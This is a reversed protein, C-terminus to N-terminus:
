SPRSAEAFAARTDQRLLIVLAWIGFPFGYFLCPSLFPIIAACAGVICMRYQRGRLMQIAAYTVLGTGVFVALQFLGKLGLLGRLHREALGLGFFFYDILDIVFLSLVIQISFTEMLLLISAPWFLRAVAQTKNSREGSEMSLFASQVETKRLAALGALAAPISFIFLPSVIPILSGFCAMKALVRNRCLLLSLSGFFSALCYLAFPTFYLYWYSIVHISLWAVELGEIGFATFCWTLLGVITTSSASCALLWIAPLRTMRRAIALQLDLKRSAEISITTPSIAAPSAYPNESASM